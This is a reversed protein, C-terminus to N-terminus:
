PRGLQSRRRSGVLSSTSVIRVWLVASTFAIFGVGKLVSVRYPQEIDKLLVFLVGDSVVIWAAATLVYGAIILLLRRRLMVAEDQDNPRDAADPSTTASRTRRLPM